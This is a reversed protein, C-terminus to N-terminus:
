YGFESKPVPKFLGPFRFSNISIDITDSMGPAGFAGVPTITGVLDVLGKAYGNSNYSSTLPLPDFNYDLGNDYYGTATILKTFAAEPAVTTNIFGAFLTLSPHDSYHNAHGILKSQDIDDPMGSLWQDESSNSVSAHYFPKYWEKRIKRARFQLRKNGDEIIEKLSYGNLYRALVAFTCTNTKFYSFSHVYDFVDVQDNEIGNCSVYGVVGEIMDLLNDLTSTGSRVKDIEDALAVTQPTFISYDWNIEIVEAYVYMQWQGVTSDYRCTYVSCSSLVTTNDYPNEDLDVYVNGNYGMQFIQLYAANFYGYSFGYSTLSYSGQEVMTRLLYSPDQSLGLTEVLFQRKAPTVPSHSVPHTYINGNYQSRIVQDDADAIYTSVGVLMLDDTGDANLDSIHTLIGSALPWSSYTSIQTSVLGTILQFSKNSLQKLIYPTSVIPDVFIDLRGDNNYDGLRVYNDGNPNEVSGSNSVIVTHTSGTFCFSTGFESDYECETLSYVYTGSPKSTFSKSISCGTQVVRNNEYLHYISDSYGCVNDTSSIIYNGTTSSNPGILGSAANAPSTFTFLITLLTVLSLCTSKNM